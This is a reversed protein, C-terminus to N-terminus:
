RKAPKKAIPRESTKKDTRAGTTDKHSLPRFVLPDKLKKALATLKSSDGKCRALLDDFEYVQGRNLKLGLNPFALVEFRICVAKAKM